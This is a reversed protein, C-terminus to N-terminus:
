LPDTMVPSQYGKFTGDDTSNYQLYGCSVVFHECLWLVFNCSLESLYQKCQIVATGVDATINTYINLVNHESTINYKVTSLGDNQFNSKALLEYRMLNLKNGSDREHYSMKYRALHKPPRHLPLGRTHIRNFMDDDEGGWGWYLNSYGNIQVFHSPSHQTVGGFLSAYPLKYGYKDIAVSLHKPLQTCRYLLRDDEPLLDVDHFVVCDFEHEQMARIFGINMLKAKNFALEGAQHVVYIKYALQQRQLIPHIHWLLARLHLERARHPIIIAVRSRAVCDPPEYFGGILISPNAHSTEALSPPTDNFHISLRGKLGPPTLPCLPKNKTSTTFTKNSRNGRFRLLEDIGDKNHIQEIFPFTVERVGMGRLKNWLPSATTAQFGRQTVNSVTSVMTLLMMTVYSTLLIAAILRILPKWRIVHDFLKFLRM